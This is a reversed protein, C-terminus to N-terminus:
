RAGKECAADFRGADFRAGFHQFMAQFAGQVALAEVESMLKREQRVYEAAWEFHKKTM